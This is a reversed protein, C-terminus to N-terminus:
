GGKELFISLDIRAIHKYINQEGSEISLSNISIFKSGAEIRKLFVILDNYSSKLVVAIPVQTLAYPAPEKPKVAADLDGEMVPPPPASEQKITEPKLSVFEVRLDSALRTLEDLFGSIDKEWFIKQKLESLKDKQDSIEKKLLQYDAATTKVRGLDVKKDRIRKALAHHGKLAPIFVFYICLFLVSLPIILTVIPLLLKLSNVRPM